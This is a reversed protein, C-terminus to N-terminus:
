NEQPLLNQEFENSENTSSKRVLMGTFRSINSAEQNEKNSFPNYLWTTADIVTVTHNHDESSAEERRLIYQYKNEQEELRRQLAEDSTGRLSDSQTSDIKLTEYPEYARLAAKAGSFKALESLKLRGGEAVMSSDLPSIVDEANKPRQEEAWLFGPLRNVEATNGMSMPYLKGHAEGLWHVKELRSSDLLVTMEKSKLRNIGNYAKTADDQMYFISEVDGSVDIRRLASDVIHARMSSGIIQNFYQLSDATREVSFMNGLADFYRLQGQTIHLQITDGSTQRLQSWMIPRGFLTLASDMSQYVMSDGIAQADHRYIRVRHYARLERSMSDQPTMILSDPLRRSILELTDAGVHLTDGESYDIAHARSTAFAYNRAAEFYGYDGYLNAKQTTDILEMAGFAEGYRTAGDYYISDGTLLRHGSHIESRDLLIGVDQNMDYVGRNSNISGSDAIILTPGDFRAIRTQTNYYLNETTLETSDNVLRVNYRFLADNTNPYYEGYDSTLTNQPDVVSGGEFYYGMNTVRDYNLSDTYLTNSPSELRVNYRLRAFKSAGDYHLYQAYMNITDAQIMHVNGFAELSQDVDNLYASDCYMKANEHRFVVGGVLRQIGPRLTADYTLLDAHELIIKKPASIKSSIPEQDIFELGISATPHATLTFYGGGLLLM